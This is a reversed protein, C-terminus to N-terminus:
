VIGYRKKIREYTKMDMEKQETHKKREIEKQKMECAHALKEIIEDKKDSLLQTPLTLVFWCDYESIMHLKIEDNNIDIIHSVCYGFGECMNNHDEIADADILELILDDFFDITEKQLRYYEKIQELTM